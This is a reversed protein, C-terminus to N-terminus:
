LEDVDEVKIQSSSSEEPDGYICTVYITSGRIIDFQSADFIINFMIYKDADIETPAPTSANTSLTSNFNLYILLTKGLLNYSLIDDSPAYKSGDYLIFGSLYYQNNDKLLRVKLFPAFYHVKLQSTASEPVDINLEGTKWHLNGLSHGNKSLPRSHQTEQLTDPTLEM